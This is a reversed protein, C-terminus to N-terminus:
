STPTSETPRSWVGWGLGILAVCSVVNMANWVIMPLQVRSLPFFLVASVILIIGPWKSFLGGRLTAIGFVISGVLTLVIGISYVTKKVDGGSAVDMETATKLVMDLMTVGSWIIFSGAFCVAGILSIWDGRPAQAAHVGLVGFPLIVFAIFTLSLQVPTFGGAAVEIIETLIWIGAALITALGSLRIERSM